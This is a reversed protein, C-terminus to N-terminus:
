APIVMPQGRFIEVFVPIGYVEEITEPSIVEVGGAAFIRGGKLLLFRDSYRIALNLDHM